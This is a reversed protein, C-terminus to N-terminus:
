TRDSEFMEITRALFDRVAGRLELMAAPGDEANAIVNTARARKQDLSMQAAERVSFRAATWGRDRRVRERRVAEPADVFLVADCERDLGVELLLPADIVVATCTPPMAATRRRRETEIWPHLISELTTRLSADAFIREALKSRDFEGHEDLVGEGFHALVAARVTPDLLAEHAIVDSHVVFCGEEALLSAVRSKGAGIGGVIGIM